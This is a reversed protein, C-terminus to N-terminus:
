RAAVSVVRGDNTSVFARDGDLVPPFTSSAGLPISEGLAGTAVDRVELSGSPTVVFVQKGSVAPPSAARLGGDGLSASWLEHGSQEDFAVLDHGLLAFVRGGAVVPHGGQWSWLTQSDESGLHREAAAFRRTDNQAGLERALPTVSRAGWLTSSSPGEAGDRVRRLGERAHERSVVFVSAGDAVPASMAGAPLTWTEKGERTFRRLLGDQTSVYIRDGLVVPGGIADAGTAVHWQERGDAAAFAFLAHTQSMTDAPAVVYVTHDAAAPHSVLPDGLWKSWAIKGTQADAVYLTCSETTFTLKDDFAVVPGAGNDALRTTWATKGTKEDMAILSYSNFGGGSVIKGRVPTVSPVIGNDDTKAQWVDHGAISAHSVDPERQCGHCATVFVAALPAARLLNMRSTM